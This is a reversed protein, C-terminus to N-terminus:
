RSSDDIDSPIPNFKNEEENEHISVDNGMANNNLETLPHERAAQDGNM